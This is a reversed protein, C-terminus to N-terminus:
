TREGDQVELANLIAPVGDEEFRVDVVPGVIQTVIGSHGM